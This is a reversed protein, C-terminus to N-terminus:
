VSPKYIFAILMTMDTQGDADFLKAEVPFFKLLNSNWPKEFVQRSYELTM